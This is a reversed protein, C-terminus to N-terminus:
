PRAALGRIPQDPLGLEALSGGAISTRGGQEILLYSGDRRRVVLTWQGARGKASFVDANPGAHRSGAPWISALIAMDAATLGAAAM